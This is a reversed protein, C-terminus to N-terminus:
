GFAAVAVVGPEGQAAVDEVEGAVRQGGVKMQDAAGDHLQCMRAVVGVVVEEDPDALDVRL